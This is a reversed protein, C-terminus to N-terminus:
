DKREFIFGKFGTGEVNSHEFGDFEVTENYRTKFANVFKELSLFWCPYSADFICPPVRQITLRDRTGFSFTTRDIIIYKLDAKLITDLWGSPDKLYMLVGSLLIVDPTERAIAEPLTEYFALHSNTFEERGVSVYAPQEVVAWRLDRIHSLFHINQYYSSGLAGGFDVVHLHNANRSAIWLLGSLVEWSYEIKDFAVSDREYAVAGDRVQLMTAKVRPLTIAPDYGTCHGAAEEWSSYDGSFGYPMSPTRRRVGSSVSDVMQRRCWKMGNWVLPPILGRLVGRVAVSSKNMRCRTPVCGVVQTSGM